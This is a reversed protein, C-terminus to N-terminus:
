AMVAGGCIRLTEGTIHAAGAGLLFAIGGAVDEPEALRRLPTQMQTLMKAKEPMHAIMDTKTMGPAVVNVRVGRPGYEVALSRALAALAAKAVVYESQQPPPPGDAAVSGLFVIAGEGAEAMAPLVQHACNYAGRVQVELQRQFADWPLEAFRRLASPPAACHVLAGIPGLADAAGDIMARVQDPDAVDARFVAARGGGGTIAELVEQAGVADRAYNVAVSWGERALRRATAAGIGRSAGTVLVTRRPGAAANAPAAARPSPDAAGEEAGTEVRADVRDDPRLMKVTSEGVILPRGEQNTITTVLVLMRTAPSKQRVRSVVRLRDGVYAQHVFELTQGTWLAGQGPLLMGIMTSIFSASLMGHVVPRRFLTRRAYDPDVHLPNYDGTLAAFAAVDADTLTHELEAEDDVRIEEFRALRSAREGAQYSL